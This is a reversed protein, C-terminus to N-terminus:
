YGGDMDALQVGRQALGVRPAGRMARPVEFRGGGANRWFRVAGRPAGVGNGDRRGDGRAGAM